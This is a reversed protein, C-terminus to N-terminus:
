FSPGGQLGQLFGPRFSQAAEQGFMVAAVAFEDLLPQLNEAPLRSRHQELQRRAEFGVALPERRKELEQRTATYTGLNM